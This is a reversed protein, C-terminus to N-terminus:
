GWMTKIGYYVLLSGISVLIAHLAVVWKFRKYDGVSYFLIGTMRQFKKAGVANFLFFTYVVTLLVIGFLFNYQESVIAYYFILGLIAVIVGTLFYGQFVPKRSVITFIFLGLGFGLALIGVSTVTSSKIVEWFM